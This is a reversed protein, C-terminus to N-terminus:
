SGWCVSWVDEAEPYLGEFYVHHVDIGGFWESSGRTQHETREIAALLERVTFHTGNPARHEVPIGALGAIRVSPARLAVADLEKDTLERLDDGEFVQANLSIAQIKAGPTAKVMGMGPVLPEAPSTLEVYLRGSLKNFSALESPISRPM